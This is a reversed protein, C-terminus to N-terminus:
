NLTGQDTYVSWVAISGDKSASALRKSREDFCIDQVGSRHYQLVALPKRTDCRYLRVRGDWGAAAFIKGDRRLALAAVGPKKLPIAALEQVEMQDWDLGFVALKDDASGSAGGSCTSCTMQEDDLGKSKHRGSLKWHCQPYTCQFSEKGAHALCAIM